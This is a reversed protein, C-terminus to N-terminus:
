GQVQVTVAGESWEIDLTQVGSDSVAGTVQVSGLNAIQNRLASQVRIPILSQSTISEFIYDETGYSLPRMIREHPRTELVSFIADKEINSEQSLLLRGQSAGLPYQLTSCIAM